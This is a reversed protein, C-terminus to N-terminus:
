RKGGRAAEAAARKGKAGEAATRRRDALYEERLSPMRREWWAYISDLQELRERREAPEDTLADLGTRLVRRPESFQDARWIYDDLANPRVSFRDFREGPVRTREIMGQRLLVRTAMSISGKSAQLVRALEASSQEHPECVLLWGYVRGVMRALGYELEFQMGLQEVFREVGAQNMVNLM